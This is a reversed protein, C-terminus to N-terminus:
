AADEQEVAALVQGRQVHEGVAVDITQVIGDYPATVDLEMKMSELVVVSTGATVADGPVAKVAIVVGPLPAELSGSGHAAAAAAEPADRWSWTGDPGHVWLWEGDRAVSWRAAGRDDAVEFRRLAGDASRPEIAVALRQPDGDDVTVELGGDIVRAALELPADDADLLRLRAWAPPGIRWGDRRDFPGADAGGSRDDLEHHRWAATARAAQAAAAAPPRRLEGAATADALLAEVMTTTQRGEVVEPRALLRRLFAANTQVGLVTLEDLARDLRERAQARDRGYAIVKMLMPDFATSVVSGAVLGSDVRVGAGRPEAYGVVPGTAPLFQVAAGDGGAIREACIRAEIAHGVPELVRGDAGDDRTAAALDIQAGDAIRLQLEVLDLGHVLETVPHEVQLRANMELFYFRPSAVGSEVLFEVTGLNRYGAATALRVAAAHLDRRLEDSLHPAPSEEILKQHRRQLSCEREGIAWVGGHADAAIQVEVHRAPEVLREVLLEARGFAAQAERRAADVASGIQGAEDVRRMGKGGGGASAKLLLPLGAEAAFAAVQDADVGPDPPITEGPVVPVDAEAATRKSAIKDGLLDIAQPSPGIWAIGADEFARAADAREALFGYGPHVADSGTRRAIEVLQAVDLYPSREGDARLAVAHDCAAVHPTGADQPAHVAVSEVGLRRLTAAIRVAIEGRNAILVRDFPM